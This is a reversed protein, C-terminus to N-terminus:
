RSRARARKKVPAEEEEDDGDESEDSSSSEVIKKPKKETKKTKKAKKGEEEEDRPKPESGAAAEAEGAKGSPKPAVINLQSGRSQLATDKFVLTTGRATAEVARELVCRQMLTRHHEDYCLAVVSSGAEFCGNVGAGGAPTGRFM